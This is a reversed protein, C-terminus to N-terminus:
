IATSVVDNGTPDHHRASSILTATKGAGTGELTELLSSSVRVNDDSSCGAVITVSRPNPLPRRHCHHEDVAVSSSWEDAHSAM